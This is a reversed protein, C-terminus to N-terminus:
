NRGKKVMNILIHRQILPNKKMNVDELRSELRGANLVVFEKAMPNAMLSYIKKVIPGNQHCDADARVLLSKKRGKSETLKMM